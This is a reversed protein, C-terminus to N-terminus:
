GRRQDKKVYFAGDHMELAVTARFLWARPQNAMIGVVAVGHKEAWKVFRSNWPNLLRAWFLGNGIGKFAIVDPKAEMALRLLPM